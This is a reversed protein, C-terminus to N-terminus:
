GGVEQVRAALKDLAMTWGTAGPSDAPIGAHTLTLTTVGDRESLSVRVETVTPHGPPMGAAEATLVDGHEDAMAETYALRENPVVERYEGVFWMRLPGKPTTMEMAVHRTGGVRVDMREVEVTTGGPGYWAAFHRPDTWLQWILEAPADFRRELVVADAENTDTM